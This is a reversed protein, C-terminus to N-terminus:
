ELDGSGLIRRAVEDVVALSNYAGDLVRQRIQAIREPTLQTDKNGRADLARGADSIQVIQAFEDRLETVQATIRSLLMRDKTSGVDILSSIFFAYLAGTERETRGGREMDIEDMLEALAEQSKGISASFLEVNNTDIAIGTRRLNALLFDYVVLRGPPASFEKMDRYASTAAAYSM